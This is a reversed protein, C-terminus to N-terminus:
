FAGTNFEDVLIATAVAHAQSLPVLLLTSESCSDTGARIVISLFARVTPHRRRGSVACGVFRRIGILGPHIPGDVENVLVAAAGPHPQSLPVLLLALGASSLKGRL